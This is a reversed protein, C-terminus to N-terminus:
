KKDDLNNQTKKLEDIQRQLEIFMSMAMSDFPNPSSAMVGAQLQKKAYRILTDFHKQDQKRLGRRFEKFRENVLDIQISYALLTRGM